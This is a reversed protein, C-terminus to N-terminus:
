KWYILLKLPLNKEVVVKIISFLLELDRFIVDGAIEEGHQGFRLSCLVLALFEGPCLEAVGHM